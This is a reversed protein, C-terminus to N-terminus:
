QVLCQITVISPPQTFAQSMEGFVGLPDCQDAARQSCCLSGTKKTGTVQVKGNSRWTSHNQHQKQFCLLLRHSVAAIRCLIQLYVSSFWRHPWLVALATHFCGLYISVQLLYRLHDLSGIVIYIHHLLVGFYCITM